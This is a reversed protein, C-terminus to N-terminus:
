LEVLCSELLSPKSPKHSASPSRSCSTIIGPVVGKTIVMEDEAATDPTSLTHLIGVPRLNLSM